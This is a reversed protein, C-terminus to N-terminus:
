SPDASPLSSEDPRHEAVPPLHGRRYVMFTRRFSIVVVGGANFGETAVTVVGLNPRSQSARVSLVKSRSRITDGAVGIVRKVLHGGQPYLGVKAM